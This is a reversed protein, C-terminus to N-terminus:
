LNAPLKTKKIAPFEKDYNSLKNKETKFRQIALSMNPNLKKIELEALVKEGSEGALDFAKALSMANNWGVANEAEQKLIELSAANATYGLALYYIYPYDANKMAFKIQSIAEQPHRALMKAIINTYYNNTRSNKAALKMLGLINANKELEYIEFFEDFRVTPLNKRAYERTWAYKKQLEIIQPEQKAAIIQKIDDLQGNFEYLELLRPHYIKMYDDIAEDYRGLNELCIATTQYYRAENSAQCTGCWSRYPYKEKATRYANLANEFDGMAFYSNGIEWQSSHRYNRYAQMLNGGPEKDNVDMSFILGFTKIAKKYERLQQYTMGLNYIIKAKTPADSVVELLNKYAIEAESFKSESYLQNAQALIDEKQAFINSIFLNAAIFVSILFAAKKM